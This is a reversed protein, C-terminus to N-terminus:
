WYQNYFPIICDNRSKCLWSFTCQEARPSLKNPVTASPIKVMAKSGFIRLHGISPLRGERMQFPTAWGPNSKHPTRNQIYCATAVADEWYTTALLATSLMCRGSNSLTLNKREAVSNEWSSYVHTPTSEIGHINCYDIVKKSMM